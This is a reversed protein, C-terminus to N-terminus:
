FIFTGSFNCIICFCLSFRSDGILFQRKQLHDLFRWLEMVRCAVLSLSLVTSLKALAKASNKSLFLCVEPTYVSGNTNQAIGEIILSSLMPSLQSKNEPPGINEVGVYAEVVTM